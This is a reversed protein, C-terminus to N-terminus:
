RMELYKWTNLGTVGDVKLGYDLQYACVAGATIKGYHGDIEGPRLYGRKVLERQLTKVHEGSANRKIIIERPVIYGAFTYNKYKGDNGTTSTWFQKTYCNWGSQSLTIINPTIKEVTAVHGAGANQYCAIAGIIPTKTVLMGLGTCYDAFKGANMSPLWIGFHKYFAGVAYFVCNQMYQKTGDPARICPNKGGDILSTFAPDTGTDPPTLIPTNDYVM